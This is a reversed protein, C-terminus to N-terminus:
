INGNKKANKRKNIERLEFGFVLNTNIKNQLVYLLWHDNFKRNRNKM